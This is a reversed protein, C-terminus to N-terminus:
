RNRMTYILSTRPTYSSLEFRDLCFCVQTADETVNGGMPRNTFPTATVNANLRKALQILPTYEPESANNQLQKIM